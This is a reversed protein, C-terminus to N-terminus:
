KTVIISSRYERTEGDILVRYIGSSLFDLSISENQRETTKRLVERGFADVIRLNTGATVDSPLCIHVQGATPNPYINFEFDSVAVIPTLLITEEAVCGNADHMQLTYTGATGLNQLSPEVSSFNDPGQWSYSYPQTGGTVSSEIFGSGPSSIAQTTLTLQLAEPETITFLAQLPMSCASLGTIVVDYNGAQLSDIANNTNGNNWLYEVGTEEAVSEIVISGDDNGFCTIQEITAATIQPSSTATVTLTINGTTCLPPTANDCVNVEISLEGSFFSSPLITLTQNEADITFTAPASANFAYQLNEPADVDDSALTGLPIVLQSSQCINQTMSEVIPAENPPFVDILCILNICSLSSDCAQIQLTDTGVFGDQPTFNFLGNVITTVGFSTTVNFSLSDDDIDTTHDYLSATIPTTQFTSYSFDNGVPSDNVPTVEIFITDSICAGLEDCTNMVVYANGSYDDSATIHLLGSENNLEAAVGIATILSQVIYQGEIDYAYYLSTYDIESDEQLQIGPFLVLPTDNVADISIYAWATDCLGDSDCARYAVSTTGFYNAPPLWSL